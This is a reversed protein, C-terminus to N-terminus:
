KKAAVVTRDIEINKLSVASNLCESDDRGLSVGLNSIKAVVESNTFSTFSTGMSELNKKTAMRAAKDLTHEDYKATTRRGRQVALSVKKNLLRQNGERALSGLDADTISAHSLIPHELRLPPPPSNPM